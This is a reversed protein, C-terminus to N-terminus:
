NTFPMGALLYPRMMPCIEQGILLTILKWKLALFGWSLRMHHAIRIKLVRQGSKPIISEGTTWAAMVIRKPWMVALSLSSTKGIRCLGSAAATKNVGTNKYYTFLPGGYQEKRLLAQTVCYILIYRYGNTGSEDITLKKRRANSKGDSLILMQGVCVDNKM